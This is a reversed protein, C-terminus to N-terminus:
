SKPNITYAYTAPQAQMHAAALAVMAANDSCHKAHPRYFQGGQAHAAARLAAAITNNRAVGGVATLHTINHAQMAKQVQQALGAAVVAQFGAAIDAPTLKSEAPHTVRRMVATKLGSFSFDYDGQAPSSFQIAAPNGNKALQELRAGGPYGLGLLVAVKDFAEGAADDLTSGLRTHEGVGNVRWLQTHGGSVLLCLHPYPLNPYRLRPSAIHGDLHSVAIAPINWAFALANALSAGLLLAAALGPGATYAIAAPRTANPAPAARLLEDIAPLLHALHDRAALEPVVGGYARHQAQSRVWEGVLTQQPRDYLACATEDCSTEIALIIGM